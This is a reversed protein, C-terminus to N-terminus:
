YSYVLNSLTLEIIDASYAFIAANVPLTCSPSVDTTFIVMDDVIHQLEVFHKCPPQKSVQNRFPLFSLHGGALFKHSTVFCFTIAEQLVHNRSIFDTGVAEL